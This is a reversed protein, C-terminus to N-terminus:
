YNIFGHEVVALKLKYLMFLFTAQAHGCSAPSVMNLTTLVNVRAAAMCPNGASLLKRKCLTPPSTSERSLQGVHGKESRLPM